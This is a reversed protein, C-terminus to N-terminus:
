HLSTNDDSRSTGRLFEGRSRALHLADAIALIAAAPEEEMGGERLASRLVLLRTLHRAAFIEVIGIGTM